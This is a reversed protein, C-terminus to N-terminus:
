NKWECTEILQRIDKTIAETIPALSDANPALNYYLAGRLFNRSSDTIVFQYNSAANGGIDYAIAYVKKIKNSFEIENIYEAKVTHKYALDRADGMLQQLNNDVKFYALHIAAKYQNYNIDIFNPNQKDAIAIQSLENVMFTYPYSPHTYSKYVPSPVKINLFGKPKPVVLEDDDCSFLFAIIIFSFISIIKM